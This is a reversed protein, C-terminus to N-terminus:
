EHGGSALHDFGLAGQVVEGNLRIDSEASVEGVVTFETRNKITMINNLSERAVCFILEFDEGGRLAWDDAEKPYMERLEVGVPLKDLEITAGLQPGLLRRLDLLFGDSCDIACEVLGTGALAAGLELRPQPRLQAQAFRSDAHKRGNELEHLGAAAEGLHGSICIVDGPRACQRRLPVDAVLEGILTLSAWFPGDTRSIDGGILHPQGHPKWVASLGQKLAAIDSAVVSSPLGLSLLGTKPRAGMAALDSLNMAGLKWGVDEFTAWSRRFDQDEVISDVCVVSAGSNTFVAADDGNGVIVELGAPTELDRLLSIAQAEGWASTRETACKRRDDMM